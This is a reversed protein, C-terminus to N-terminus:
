VSRNAMLKQRGRLKESFRAMDCLAPMPPSLQVCCSLGDSGAFSSTNQEAGHGDPVGPGCSNHKALHSPSEIVDAQYFMLLVLYNVRM